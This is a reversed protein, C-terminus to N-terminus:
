DSGAPEAARGAPEWPVGSMDALALVLAHTGRGGLGHEEARAYLEEALALGPMSLDM